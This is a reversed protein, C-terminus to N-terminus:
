TYLSVSNCHKRVNEISKGFVANNRLKFFNKQLDKKHKKKRLDMTMDVYSKLRSKQKYKIIRHLRILVFEQNLPQKLM